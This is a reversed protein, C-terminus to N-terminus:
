FKEILSIVLEETNDSSKKGLIKNILEKKDPFIKVLSKRNLQIQHFANDTGTIYYRAGEQYEDFRIDASYAGKYNAEVFTKVPIKIFQVPGGALVQYFKNERPNKEFSVGRTTRYILEKNDKVIVLEKVNDSPLAFLKRTEPDTYLVANGILDLDAGMKIYYDNESVLLFAPLLTDFLRPSGVVGQYRIDFGFGGASYPALNAIADLNQQASIGTQFISTRQSHVNLFALISFILVFLKRM